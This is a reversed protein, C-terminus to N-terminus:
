YQKDFQKAIGPSNAAPVEMSSGKSEFFTYALTIEKMGKCKYDTLIDPDIYFFVPMDVTEDPELRQDEFCFCQIKNFYPAADYPIINYTSVGVIPRDTPNTATFFALATEGPYVRLTEQQPKFEWLMRSNRASKFRITLEGHEKVPDLTALKEAKEDRLSIDLEGGMNTTQCFVKYLPAAAYAMSISFFFGAVVYLAGNRNARKTEETRDSQNGDSFNKANRQGDSYNSRVVTLITRNLGSFQCYGFSFMTGCSIRGPFQFQHSSVIRKTYIYRRPIGLAVNQKSYFSCATLKPLNWVTPNLIRTIREIKAM